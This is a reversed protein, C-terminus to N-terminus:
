RVLRFGIVSYRDIPYVGYRYSCRLYYGFHYWSGGRLVRVQSSAPGTPNEYPSNSYYAKDYWDACWEWVNGSMDYIGLENPKKTGVPHTRDNSNGDYWAVEDVNNSGSYKYGRSKNGGRAAYEWEAETPLRFNGGTRANLKRIFEQVDNWTVSEVPRNDGIFYSPNSGMIAVWQKQTVETKGIYFDSVTVSHVPKEDPYGENFTDGMDFTGGKVLVMEIGLNALLQQIRAQERQEEDRRRQEALRRQEEQERRQQEALREAEERARQQALQQKATALREGLGPLSPQVELAKEFHNVAKDYQGSGLAAEGWQNYKAAIERKLALADSNNPDLTLIAEAIALANENAPSTLKNAALYNRGQQLLSAIKEVQVSGKKTEAPTDIKKLTNPRPKTVPVPRSVPEPPRTLKGVVVGIVVILVVSILGVAAKWWLPMVPKPTSPTAKLRAPKAAPAAVPKVASVPRTEGHELATILESCSQYREDPKKALCRLVANELEEPIDTKVQRLPTPPDHTIQHITGLMSNSQFPLQGTLCEYLVVGLSYIDSRADTAEGKAQEPSMYEPTGLVTGTRTLQSSEAARAIGFDTLVPRSKRDILINSSKIDRHIMGQEHAYGLAEAIPILLRKTTEPSLAGQQHILHHLNDGDVYEMAIFHVGNEVGEDYITVINHHNLQAAAAAERHFRELFEPDHTFQQPLVKLAVPRNLNKQIAKYVVAMGGRGIEELIEYRNALANRIWTVPDSPPPTVPAEQSPQDLMSGCHKCKIAIKKITEGCFPCLKTEKKM